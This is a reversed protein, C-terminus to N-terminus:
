NFTHNYDINTILEYIFPRLTCIMSIHPSQGLWYVLPGMVQPLPASTENDPPVHGPACTRPCPVQGHPSHGHVPPDSLNDTTQPLKTQPRVHLLFAFDWTWEYASVSRASRIGSVSIKTISASHCEQLLFELCAVWKCGQERIKWWFVWVVMLGAAVSYQFWLFNLLSGSVEAVLCKLVLVSRWWSVEAGVKLRIM